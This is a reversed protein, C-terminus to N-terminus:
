KGWIDAEWSLNGSLQYQNTSRDALISWVSQKLCNKIPGTQEWLYTPLLRSKGTENGTCSRHKAYIIDLNNQLGKFYLRAFLTLLFKIGPYM